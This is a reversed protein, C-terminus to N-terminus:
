NEPKTSTRRASPLVKFYLISRYELFPFASTIIKAADIEIASSCLNYTQSVDFM